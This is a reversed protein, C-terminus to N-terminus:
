QHADPTPPDQPPENGTRECLIEATVTDALQGPHEGPQYTVTVARLSATLVTGPRWSGRRWVWVPQGQRYVATSAGNRSTMAAGDTVPHPHHGGHHHTYPHHSTQKM